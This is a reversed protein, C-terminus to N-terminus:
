DFGGMKRYQRYTYIIFCSPVIVCTGDASSLATYWGGGIVDRGQICVSAWQKNNASGQLGVNWRMTVGGISQDM